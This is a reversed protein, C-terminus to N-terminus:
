NFFLAIKQVKQLIDVTVTLQIVYFFLLIRGNPIWVNTVKLIYCIVSTDYEFLDIIFTFITENTM